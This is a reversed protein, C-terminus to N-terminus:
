LRFRRWRSLCFHGVGVAVLGRLVAWLALALVGAVVPTAAIVGGLQAGQATALTNGVGSGYFVCQEFQGRRFRSVTVGCDGLELVVSVQFSHLCRIHPRRAPALCGRWDRTTRLSWPLLRHPSRVTHSPLRRGALRPPEGGRARTRTHIVM